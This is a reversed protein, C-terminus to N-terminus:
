STPPGGFFLTTDETRPSVLFFEEYKKKFISPPFNRPTWGQRRGKHIIQCGCITAVKHPEGLHYQLASGELRVSDIKLERSDFAVERVSDAKAELTV